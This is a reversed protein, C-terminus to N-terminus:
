DKITPNDLIELLRKSSTLLKNEQIDEKLLGIHKMFSYPKQIIESEINFNYCREFLFLVEEESFDSLYNNNYSGFGCQTFLINM